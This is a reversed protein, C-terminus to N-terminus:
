PIVPTITTTPTITGDLKADSSVEANAEYDFNIDEAYDINISKDVITVIDPSSACGSFCGGLLLLTILLGCQVVKRQRTM